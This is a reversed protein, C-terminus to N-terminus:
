DAEYIATQVMPYQVNPSTSKKIQKPNEIKKLKCNIPFVLRLSFYFHNKEKNEHRGIRFHTKLFM